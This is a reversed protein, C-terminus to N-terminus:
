RLQWRSFATLSGNSYFWNDVTIQRGNFQYHRRTERVIPAGKASRRVAYELTQFGQETLQSLVIPNGHENVGLLLQQEGLLYDIRDNVTGRKDALLQLRLQYRQESPRQPRLKLEYDDRVAGDAKCFYGQSYGDRDRRSLASLHQALQQQQQSSLHAPTPADFLNGRLQAPSAQGCENSAAMVLQSCTTIVLLLVAAFLPKM